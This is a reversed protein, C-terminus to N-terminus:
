FRLSPHKRSWGFFDFISNETDGAIKENTELSFLGYENLKYGMSKVKTRKRINYFVPGTTQYLCAGKSEKTTIFINIPRNKYIGFVKKTGGYEYEIHNKIKSIFEEINKPIVVIDIDGVKEIERRISGSIDISDCLYKIESILKNTVEKAEELNIKKFNDKATKKKM